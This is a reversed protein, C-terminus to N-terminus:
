VMLGLVVISLFVVYRRNSSTQVVPAEMSEAM